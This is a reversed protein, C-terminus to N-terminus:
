DTEGEFDDPDSTEAWEEPTLGGEELMGKGQAKAQNRSRSMAFFVLLPVFIFAVILGVLWTGLSAIPGIIMMFFFSALILALIQRLSFDFQMQNKMQENSQEFEGRSSAILTLAVLGFLSSIYFPGFSLLCLISGILAIGWSISNIAMWGIIIIFLGIIIEFGALIFVLDENFFFAGLPGFIIIKRLTSLLMGNLLALSGGIILLYGGIIRTKM